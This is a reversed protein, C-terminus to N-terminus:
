DRDYQEHTLVEQVDVRQEEYNVIALVRYKNGGIDFIVRGNAYDATAFSKKVDPFHKWAAATAIAVFRALPKRCHTYKKSFEAM